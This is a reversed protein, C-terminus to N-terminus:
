AARAAQRLDEVVAQMEVGSTRATVRELRFPALLLWGLGAIVALDLVANLAIITDLSM